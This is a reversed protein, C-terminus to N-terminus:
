LTVYFRLITAYIISVKIAMFSSLLIILKYVTSGSTIIILSCCYYARVVNSDNDHNYM